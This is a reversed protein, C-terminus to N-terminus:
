KQAKPYHHSWGTKGRYDWMSTGGQVPIVEIRPGIAVVVRGSVRQARGKQEAPIDIRNDSIGIKEAEGPTRTSDVAAGALIANLYSQLQKVADDMIQGVTTTVEGSSDADFYVYKLSRLQDLPLRLVDELRKRNPHSPDRSSKWWDKKWEAKSGYFHRVLGSPRISKLEIVVGFRPRLYMGGTGLCFIDAFGYRNFGAPQKKEGVSKKHDTLLRLQPFYNGKFEGWYFADFLCQFSAEPLDYIDIPAMMELLETM